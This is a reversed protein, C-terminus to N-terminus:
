EDEEEYDIDEDIQSEECLGYCGCCECACSCGYLYDEEYDEEHDVPIYDTYEDLIDPTGTM